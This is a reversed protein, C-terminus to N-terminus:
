HLIKYQSSSIILYTAVRVRQGMDTLTTIHNVIATRMQSSMQGHMLLMGLADVLDGPKAALTGWTSKASLDVTFGTIRNFVMTNALSLRLVVSATNEQAFEPANTTTGPIVYEPPFFNFVSPSAYPRQSLTATYNGLTNYSANAVVDNGAVADNNTFGLGRVLNTMWLIPERLHGGEAAANTDGARAESDTLIAMVVAKMDGRVRSGNDAFVAAVRAVYAPSPNSAVLHQILQRCVFPGVNAHNFINNLAGDLDQAATQGGPLTTGNLLIKASTDHNADVAAMPMTYNATGNPFKTPSTGTSTAYTWGTFAKAFAQVQDQTYAPIMNGSQDLKPTGDNDLVFLGMSFLQMLERSYNENAIQVVGNVTGPKNSNLMNLYAGMAPSLTVDKMVTLFNGFADNVLTNQFTVVARSNVANTSVVFMEAMAFAVRQRLQDPATLTAQWWESQLCPILNTACPTPPTAAILPLTTPTANFQENLYGYIGVSQVHQIDTLTPGFTTQDLLRAAATVSSQVTVQANAVSSSTGGPDPNSVSLPLTTMDQTLTLTATATLQTPSGVTAALTQGQVQVQAGTVFNAGTVTITYTPGFGVVTASAVKPQPNLISESMSGSVGPSAQSVATITVTNPNPIALPPTYLGSPTITGTASAGGTVGNVQWAVMTNSTNAVSAAFQITSGLRVQNNGSVKVSVPGASSAGTGGGGCGVILVLSLLSLSVIPNVGSSL